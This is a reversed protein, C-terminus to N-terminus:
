PMQIGRRVYRRYRSLIPQPIESLLHDPFNKPKLIRLSVSSYRFRDLPQLNKTFYVHLSILKHTKCTPRHFTM